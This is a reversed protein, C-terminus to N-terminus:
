HVCLEGRWGAEKTPTLAAPELVGDKLPDGPKIPTLGVGIENVNSGPFLYQTVFNDHENLHSALEQTEKMPDTPKPYHVEYVDVITGIETNTPDEQRGEFERDSDINEIAETAAEVNMNTLNALLTITDTKDLSIEQDNFKYQDDGISSIKIM